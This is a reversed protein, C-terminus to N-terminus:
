RRNNKFLFENILCHSAIDNYNMSCNLFQENVLRAQRFDSEGAFRSDSNWCVAPLLEELFFM